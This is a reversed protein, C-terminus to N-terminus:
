PGWYRHKRLYNSFQTGYLNMGKTRLSIIKLEEANEGYSGYHIIKGTYDVALSCGICIRGKWPGDTVPGVNSVGVVNIQYLKALTQYANKWTKGYPTKKQNYNWEVAWACPSFIHQAGMRALVHGIALSNPFNDACIDIGIKGFPTSAISLSNGISYLGKALDLENIKRHKILIQGDSSILIASNYLNEGDLETIGAIVYIKYSKAAECLLDSIKGPIPQAFKKAIPNTWGFDLCEPLIIVDASQDAASKIMQEANKLNVEKKDFNVYMQGIALLFEAKM